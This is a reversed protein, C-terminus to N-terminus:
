TPILDKESMCRLSPFKVPPRDKAGTVVPPCTTGRDTKGRLCRAVSLGSDLAPARSQLFGVIYQNIDSRAENHNAYRRQWVREMKLNLFFREMVAYGL